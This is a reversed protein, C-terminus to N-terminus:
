KNKKYQNLIVCITDRDIDSHIVQNQLEQDRLPTPLSVSRLSLNSEKTNRVAAQLEKETKVRESRSTSKKEGTVHTVETTKAKQEAKELANWDIGEM